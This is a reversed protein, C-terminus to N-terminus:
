LSNIFALLDNRQRKSLKKYKNKANLAEGGHWLIAEEISKARGDHLFDTHGNILFTLGIGWLPRTKWESGGALFDPRGDSLGEGMDHLLLDTYPFITQNSLASVSSNGTVHKPIHCKACAIEEFIKAGNKVAQKELNRPAPVGLTQCYLVVQRLTEEILEPDDDLGDQGNFQNHGTENKFIFNTIGMDEVYASACQVRLTSTNAKWGFRGLETRETEPNWVYNAKGSIGDGNSDNSDQNSLIATEPIEELLGLGFVPTGIRPSLMMGAPLNTYPNILSFVPKRLVVVTGDDFTETVESFSVQYSAEPIYGFLAQNQIQLGFGPVPNPGLHEDTGAISARILLGSRSLLNNPFGPRGDNPHCSICSNNNFIPGLGSNIEAPATVFTDEFRTDGILHALLDSPSLNPAPTRYSISTASFITTEGGAYLRESLDIDVYSDDESECSAFSLGICFLLLSKKFMAFDKFAFLIDLYISMRKTFKM